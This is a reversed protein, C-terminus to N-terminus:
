IVNLEKCSLKTSYAPQMRTRRDDDDNIVVKCFILHFRVKAPQRSLVLFFSQSYATTKKKGIRALM